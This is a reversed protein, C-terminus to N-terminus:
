AIEPEYEKLIAVLKDVDDERLHIIPFSDVRNIRRIHLENNELWVESLFNLNLDLKKGAIKLLFNQERKFFFANKRTQSWIINGFGLLLFVCISMVGLVSSELFNMFERIYFGIFGGILGGVLGIIWFPNDRWKM